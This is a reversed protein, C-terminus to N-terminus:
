TRPAMAANGTWGAPVPEAPDFDIEVEVGNPDPFFLQWTLFPDPARRLRYEIKREKLWELTAAM